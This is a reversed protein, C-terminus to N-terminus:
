KIIQTECATLDIAIVPVVGIYKTKTGSGGVGRWSKGDKDVTGGGITWYTFAGSISKHAGQKHACQEAFSTLKKVLTWDGKIIIYNGIDRISTVGGM